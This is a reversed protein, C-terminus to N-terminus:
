GGTERAAGAVAKWIREPSLPLSNFQVKFPSLADEVALLVATSAPITGGEGAGKVGLPNLKTPSEVHDVEIRPVDSPGPLLYDMFSANLVQGNDDYIVEELLANGIGHAVGGVVQGEVILPNLVRGCDHSVAYKLIKVGGTEPDVEVICAHAGNSHTARTPPFFVTAELGPQIGKPLVFGSVAGSAIRAVEALAVKKSRTRSSYIWGDKIDLSRVPAKLMNAAIALTKERVKRCAAFVANGATVTARSAFTGIGYPITATDGCIVSIDDLNVGLEDATIQSIMTDHGQGQPATGTFVEVRGAMTIRVTAGEYPGLGTGEVYCAVGVGQYKGNRFLTQQRKRFESYGIRRLAQRLCKPYDGSDYIMPHNDRYILGLKYPMQEPQVFNKYRLRTSDMKLVKAAKEILREMTFVAQPRGAGRVVSTPVKNTYVVTAKFHYNPIRYPGPLTAGTIWPVVMSTSYAGMDHIFRVRVALITGDAKFAMEAYHVQDREQRAALCHERRDETFKVTKQLKMALWPVLYNEAHFQGKVGFGGGVNPTIVRIKHDPMKLMSVLARHIRHPGQSTTWINLQGLKSDFTVLMARTEMPQGAARHVFVRERIVHDAERFARDPNGVTQELVGAINEPAREHIRPAKPDIAQEIDTVPDLPEYEVRILDLADEAIYRSEAVVAAVTEGVYCVEGRALVPELIPKLAPHPVSFPLVPIQAGFDRESVVALVGPLQLAESADFHVIRARAHPSRLFAAHVTGDIQLDDVFTGRGQLLSMDEKRRVRAGLYRKM